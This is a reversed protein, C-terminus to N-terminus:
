LTSGSCVFSLTSSLAKCNGALPESPATPLVYSRWDPLEDRTLVRESTFVRRLHEAPRLVSM